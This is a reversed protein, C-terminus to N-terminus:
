ETNIMGIASFIHLSEFLKNGRIKDIRKQYFPVYVVFIKGHVKFQALFIGFLIEPDTHSFEPKIMLLHLHRVYAFFRM